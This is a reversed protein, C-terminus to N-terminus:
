PGDGMVADTEGKSDDAERASVADADSDEVCFVLNTAAGRELCVASVVVIVFPLQSGRPSAAVAGGVGGPVDAEEVVPVDVVVVVSCPQPSAESGEAFTKPLQQLVEQTADDAAVVAGDMTGLQELPPPPQLRDTVAVVAPVDASARVDCDVAHLNLSVGGVYAATADAEGAVLRCPLRRGCDRTPKPFKRLRTHLLPPPSPPLQLAEALLVACLVWSVGGIDPEGGGRASACAQLPKVIRPYQALEQPKGLTGNVGSIQLVAFVWAVAVSFSEDGALAGSTTICSSSPRPSPSPSPPSPPSPSSSLRLKQLSLASRHAVCSVYGGDECIIAGM